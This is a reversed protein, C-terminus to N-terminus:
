RVRHKSSKELLPKTDKIMEPYNDTMIINESNSRSKKRKVKSIDIFIHQSEWQLGRNRIRVKVNEMNERKM